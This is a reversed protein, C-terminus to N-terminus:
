DLAINAAEGWINPLTHRLIEVFNGLSMTGGDFQNERRLSARLRTLILCALPRQLSLPRAPCLGNMLKVCQPFNM